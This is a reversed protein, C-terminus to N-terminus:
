HWWIRTSRLRDLATWLVEGASRIAESARKSRRKFSADEKRRKLEEQEDWLALKGSRLMQELAGNSKSIDDKTLTDAVMKPHPTWRLASQARRMAESIIALEVSTRRDQRSTPNGKKISDFLSKADTIACQQSRQRLQCEEKLVAIYPTLSRSWDARDVDGFVVDRFMIQLWEAESLAQSFALAEGGLTSSVRRRLKTSRWSLVSVRTGSSASPVREAALIIWAGQTTDQLREEEPGIPLSDVGGADSVSILVLRNVDIKTLILPQQATSRLHVALKNLCHADHITANKLRSSLISVVGSAEPRTQHAVWNVRYLLSRYPEFEDETLLSSPDSLRGKGLKVPHIKEIIYKEQHFTVRDESVKVHRGAFDAEQDEWKGFKFAANMKEKLVPLYSETAGINIDDVEILVQALLQGKDRLVLWCPELLTRKFGLGEFFDLLTEHWRLPADNLGYVPVILEILSDKDMALGECPTVFLPGQPRTMPRSQCFANTIDAFSVRFGLSVCVQFFMTIAETCPMPSYTDLVESDQDKHGHVCWRSKYKFNGVGPTPKKRRVMRSSIIRHPFKARAESAEKGTLVRVAGMGVINQWEAADSKDFGAREEPTADRMNFEASKKHAAAAALSTGSSSSQLHGWSQAPSYLMSEQLNDAMSESLLSLLGVQDDPPETVAQDVAIDQRAGRGHLRNWRREETAAHRALQEIESVRRRVRRGEPVRPRPHERKRDTTSAAPAAESASAQSVSAQRSVDPTPELLPEEQTQASEQRAFARAPHEPAALPSADPAQSLPEARILPQGASATDEQEEEIPSLRQRESRVAPVVPATEPVPVSDWAEEPPTGEKAVDVAGARHSSLQSTLDQIEGSKLLEAGLSEEHSAPRLQDSNCKLLRSRMSVWVSHGDQMVVLGPGTWRSRTMHGQGTGPFRRYVFVWQGVHWQRQLHPRSTGSLRVKDQATTRVCLERARQRIAHTRSFEAAASDQEFSDALIESMGPAQLGDDSLLELPIRPNTGFALQAPSFGGRHFWRNKHSVLSLVLSDLDERSTVVGQGSQIEEELRTKVWGGHREAKGNQWPSYSDSVVHLVGCQEVRREFEFRFESGGDTLITQPLGFPRLWMESFLKWVSASTPTGSVYDPLRAVQQLNTGHCIVNLFALTHKEWSIYFVDLAVLNNFSFTRPFAAKRRPVPRKQQSCQHCDFEEAVYRLVEPRAGAAKLMSLMQRVPTHGTNIHVRRIKEKEDSTLQKLHQGSPTLPSSLQPIQDEEDDFSDDQEATFNSGNGCLGDLLAEVLAPPFVRARRALDSGELRLHEHDGQCQSGSLRQLLGLHNSAIGTAKRSLTGPSVSLGFFCQDIVLRQVGPQRLLWNMSHLAWSSAGSPQELMFFKGARIQFEAVQIAFTMMSIAKVQLKWLDRQSMKELNANMATSFMKCEPTALVVDPQQSRMVDWFHARDQPKFFDWGEQLDFSPPRTTQLGRAEARATVRSPSFLELIKLAGHGSSKTLSAMGGSTFNDSRLGCPSIHGGLTQLM